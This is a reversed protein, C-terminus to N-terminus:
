LRLIIHCMRKNWKNESLFSFWMKHQVSSIESNFWACRAWTRRRRTSSTRLKYECAAASKNKVPQQTQAMKKFFFCFVLAQCCKQNRFNQIQNLKEMRELSTFTPHSYHWAVSTCSKLTKSEWAGSKQWFSTVNRHGLVDNWNKCLKFFHSKNLVNSQVSSILLKAAWSSWAVTQSIHQALCGKLEGLSVDEYLDWEASLNFQLLVKSM